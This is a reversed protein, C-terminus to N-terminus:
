TNWLWMMLAPIMQSLGVMPKKHQKREHLTKQWAHQNKRQEDRIRGGVAGPVTGDDCCSLTRHGYPNRVPFPSYESKATLTTATHTHCRRPCIQPKLCLAPAVECLDCPGKAPFRAVPAVASLHTGLTRSQGVRELGSVTIRNTPALTRTFMM